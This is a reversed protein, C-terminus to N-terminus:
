NKILRKSNRENRVNVKKHSKQCKSYYASYAPTCSVHEDAPGATDKGRTANSQRGSSVLTSMTSRFKDHNHKLDCVPIPSMATRKNSTPVALHV